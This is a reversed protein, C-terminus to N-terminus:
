FLTPLLVRHNLCACLVLCPSEPVRGAVPQEAVDGMGFSRDAHAFQSVEDMEVVVGYALVQSYQLVGFKHDILDLGPVAGASRPKQVAEV